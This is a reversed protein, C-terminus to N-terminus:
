YSTNLDETFIVMKIGGRIIEKGGPYSCIRNRLPGIRSIRYDMEEM